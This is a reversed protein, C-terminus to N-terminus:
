AQGGYTEDTKATVNALKLIDEILSPGIDDLVRGEPYKRFYNTAIRAKVAVGAWTQAPIRQIAFEIDTYAACAENLENNDPDVLTCARKFAADHELDLRLLEADPNEEALTPLPDPTSATGTCAASAATLILRRSVSTEQERDITM